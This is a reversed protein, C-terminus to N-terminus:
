IGRLIGVFEASPNLGMANCLYRLWVELGVGERNGADSM